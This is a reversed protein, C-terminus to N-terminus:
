GAAGTRYLALLREVVADIGYDSEIAARAAAGLARRREPADILAVLREGLAAADGRPFLLGSVGDEILDTNGGVESAVVGRAALMAEMVANPLGEAFSPQVYIDLAAYFPATRTEELHGLWVVADAIGLAAARRGLAERTEGDGAIALELTTGPRAARALAFGELLVHVGKVARLRGCYGIRVLPEPQAPPAPERTDIGNPVCAIQADRFGAELLKERTQGSICQVRDVRALGARLLRNLPKRRARRDLVGGEFEYFGSVKTVTPLATRHRVFGAAAAVLHTVHVHLADFRERNAVLWRGTNVLLMLSGLWRVHPYDIRTVRFGHYTEELPQSRLVRPTVFELPVGRERLAFALKLAQSEAGGFGPFRSDVAFLVRPVPTDAGAAADAGSREVRSM